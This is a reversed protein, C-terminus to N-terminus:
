NWFYWFGIEEYVAIKKSEATASYGFTLPKFDKHMIKCSGFAYSKPFVFEKNAQLTDYMYYYDSNRASWVVKEDGNYGTISYRYEAETNDKLL